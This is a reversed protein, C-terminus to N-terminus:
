RYKHAVSYVADALSQGSNIAEQQIIDFWSKRYPELMPDNLGQRLTEFPNLPDWYFNFVNEVLDEPPDNFLDYFDQLMAEYRVGTSYKQRSHPVRAINPYEREFKQIWFYDSKCIQTAQLNKRCYNVLDNLPLNLLIEYDIAQPLPM